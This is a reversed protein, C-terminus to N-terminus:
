LCPSDDGHTIRKITITIREKIKIKTQCEKRGIFCKFLKSTFSKISTLASLKLSFLHQSTRFVISLLPPPLFTRHWQSFSHEQSLVNKNSEKTQKVIQTLSAMRPHRLIIPQLVVELLLRMLMYGWRHPAM